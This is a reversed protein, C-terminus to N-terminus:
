YASRKSESSARWLTRATSMAIHVEQVTASTRYWLRERMIIQTLGDKESQHVSVVDAFWFTTILTGSQKILVWGRSDQDASVTQELAM